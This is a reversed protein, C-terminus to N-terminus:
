RIVTFTERRICPEYDLQCINNSTERRSAETISSRESWIRGHEHERLSTKTGSEDATLRGPVRVTHLTFESSLTGIRKNLCSM